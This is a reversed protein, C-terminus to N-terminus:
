SPTTPSLRALRTINDDKISALRDLVGKSHRMFLSRTTWIKGKVKWNRIDDRHAKVGRVEYHSGDIVKAIVASIWDYEETLVRVPEGVSYENM